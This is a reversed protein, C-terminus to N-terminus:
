NRHSPASFLNGLHEAKALLREFDDLSPEPFARRESGREAIPLDGHLEVFRRVAHDFESSTNPPPQKAKKWGELSATLTGGDAPESQAPEGIRPTEIAEGHNRQEIAQLAQVYRRLVAAGLQRYSLSGRDLNICFVDLLEDLEDRVFSIDGKALASKAAPLVWAMNERLKEMERNSLGFTPRPSVAFAAEAAVGAEALQNALSQYLEESGTGDRRVDEDEGLITAYHYDAIREIEADSLNNRKPLDELLAAARALTRDFEILSRSPEYTPKACTKRACHDSSGHCASGPREM